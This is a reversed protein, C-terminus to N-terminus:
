ASLAEVDVELGLAEAVGESVRGGLPVLDNGNDPKQDVKEKQQAVLCAVLVSAISWNQKMLEFLTESQTKAFSTMMAHMETQNQCLEEDQLWEGRWGFSKENEPQIREIPQIMGREVRLRYFNRMTLRFENKDAMHFDALRTRLNVGTLVFLLKIVHLDSLGIFLAPPLRAKNITKLTKLHQVCKLSGRGSAVACCSTPFTKSGSSMAIVEESSGDDTPSSASGEGGSSNDDGSLDSDHDSSVDSEGHARAMMAKTRRGSLQRRKGHKRQKSSSLSPLQVRSASQQQIMTALRKKKSCKDKVMAVLRYLFFEVCHCSVLSDRTAIEQLSFSQAVLHSSNVWQSFVVLVSALSVFDFCCHIFICCFSCCSNLLFMLVISVMVCGNTRVSVLCSIFNMLSASNVGFAGDGAFFSGLEVVSM